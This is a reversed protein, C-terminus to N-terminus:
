ILCCKAIAQLKKLNLLLAPALLGWKQSTPAIAPAVPIGAYSHNLNPLNIYITSMLEPSVGCLVLNQYTLNYM